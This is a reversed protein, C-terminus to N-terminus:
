LSEFLALREEHTLPGTKSNSDRVRCSRGPLQLVAAQREQYEEMTLVEPKPLSEVLYYEPCTENLGMNYPYMFQRLSSLSNTKDRLRAVAQVKQEGLRRYFTEAAEPTCSTTLRRKMLKVENLGTKKVATGATSGKASVSLAVELRSILFLLDDQLEKDAGLVKKALWDYQTFLGLKVLLYKIQADRLQNSRRYAFIERAMEALISSRLAEHDSDTLGHGRLIDLRAEFGLCSCLYFMLRPAQLFDVDHMEEEDCQHYFFDSQGHPLTELVMAEGLRVKKRISGRRQAHGLSPEYLVMCRRSPWYQQIGKALTKAHGQLSEGTADRFFLKKESVSIIAHREALTSYYRLSSLATQGPHSKLFKIREVWEQASPQDALVSEFYYSKKPTVITWKSGEGSGSEDLQFTDMPNATDKEEEEEFGGPTDNDQEQGAEGEGGTSCLRLSSGGLRSGNPSSGPTHSGPAKWSDRRRLGMVSRRSGASSSALLSDVDQDKDDAGHATAQDDTKVWGFAPHCVSYHIIVKPAYLNDPRYCSLTADRLRLVLYVLRRKPKLLAWGCFVDDIIAPDLSAVPSQGAELAREKEKLNNKILARLPTSWAEYDAEKKCRLILSRADTGLFFVYYKSAPPSKLMEFALTRDFEIVGKPKRDAGTKYWSVTGQQLRLTVYRTQWSKGSKHKKGLYCGVDASASAPQLVVDRSEQINFLVPSTRAQEQQQPSSGSAKKSTDTSKWGLGKNKKMQKPSNDTSYLLSKTRKTTMLQYAVRDLGTHLLASSSDFRLSADPVTAQSLLPLLLHDMHPNTQSSVVLLRIGYQKCLQAPYLDTLDDLPFVEGEGDAPNPCVSNLLVITGGAMDDLLSKGDSTRPTGMSLGRYLSTNYVRATLDLKAMMAIWTDVESKTSQGNVVLLADCHTSPAYEEAVQVSVTRKQIPRHQHFDQIHGLELTVELHSLAYSPCEQNFMLTFRFYETAGAKVMLIEKEPDAGFVHGEEDRLTLQTASVFEEQELCTVRVRVVRGHQSQAGLDQSSLNKIGVVVPCEQMRPTSVHHLIPILEVPYRIELNFSDKAVNQFEKQVRPMLARHVLPTQVTFPNGDAVEERSQISAIIPEEMKMSEGPDLPVLPIAKDGMTIWENDRVSVQVQRDGRPMPCGGINKFTPFIRLTCGPEFISNGTTPACFCNNLELEYRSPYEKQEGNSHRVKILPRKTHGDKGEKGPTGENGPIGSSGTGGGASYETAFGFGGGQGGDAVNGEAALSKFAAGGKGAKGREGAGGGPGAAGGEGGRSVIPSELLM